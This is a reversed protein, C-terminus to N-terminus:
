LTLALAGALLLVGTGGAFLLVNQDFTRTRSGVDLTLPRYGNSDALEGGYLTMTAATVFFGGLIVVIISGAIAFRM